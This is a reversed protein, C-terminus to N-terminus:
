GHIDKLRTKLLIKKGDKFVIKANDDEKGAPIRYLGTGNELIYKAHERNNECLLSEGNYLVIFDAIAKTPRVEIAKNSAIPETVISKRITPNILIKEKQKERRMKITEFIIGVWIGIATIISAIIGISTLDLSVM